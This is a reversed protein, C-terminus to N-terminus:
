KPLRSENIQEQCEFASNLEDFTVNLAKCLKRCTSMVADQRGSELRAVHPQSTDLAAALQSQTLGSRLRLVKITIPEDSYLAEAVAARATKLGQARDPNQERKGM